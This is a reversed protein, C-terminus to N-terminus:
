LEKELADPGCIGTAETVGVADSDPDPVYVVEERLVFDVVM